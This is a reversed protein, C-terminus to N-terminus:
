RLYMMRGENNEVDLETLVAQFKQFYLCFHFLKITNNVELIPMMMATTAANSIWMSLFATVCMFGLMISTIAEGSLMLARLALRKHLGLCKLDNKSITILFKISQM